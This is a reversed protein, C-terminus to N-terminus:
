PGEDEAGPDGPDGPDGVRGGVAGDVRRRAAVQDQRGERRDEEPDGRDLRAADVREAGEDRDVEQRGAGRAELQEAGLAVYLLDEVTRRQDRRDRDRLHVAVPEELALPGGSAHWGPYAALLSLRVFNPATSSRNSTRPWTASTVPPADPSPYANASIRTTAPAFTTMASQSSAASFCATPASASAAAAGEPGGSTLPRVISTLSAASTRAKTSSTTSWCPRMSMTKALAPTARPRGGIIGSPQSSSM